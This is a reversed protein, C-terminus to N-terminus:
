KYYIGDNKAECIEEVKWQAVLCFFFSVRHEHGCINGFYAVELKKERFTIIIKASRFTRWRAV